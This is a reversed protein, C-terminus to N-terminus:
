GAIRNHLFIGVGESRGSRLRWQRRGAALGPLCCLILRVDGLAASTATRWAIPM